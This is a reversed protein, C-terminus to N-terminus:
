RRGSPRRQLGETTLKGIRPGFFEWLNHAAFSGPRKGCAKCSALFCHARALCGDLSDQSLELPGVRNCETDALHVQIAIM